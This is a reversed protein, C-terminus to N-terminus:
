IHVNRTKLLFSRLLIKQHILVKHANSSIIKDDRQEGWKQWESQCNTLKEITLRSSKSKKKLFHGNRQSGVMKVKEFSLFYIVNLELYQAKLFLIISIDSLLHFNNKIPQLHFSIPSGLPFDRYKTNVYNMTKNPICHGFSIRKDSNM